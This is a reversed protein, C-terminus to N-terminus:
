QAELAPVTSEDIMKEIQDARFRVNRGLKVYEIERRWIKQYLSSPKLRLAEAAERITLLKCQTKMEDSKKV